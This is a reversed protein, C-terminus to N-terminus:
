RGLFLITGMPIRLLADMADHGQCRLTLSPYFIFRKYGDPTKMLLDLPFRSFGLYM